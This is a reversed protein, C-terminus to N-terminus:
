RGAKVIPTFLPDKKFKALFNNFEKNSKLKLYRTKFLILM